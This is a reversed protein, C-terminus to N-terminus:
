QCAPLPSPYVAEVFGVSCVGTSPMTIESGQILKGALSPLPATPSVTLNVGNLSIMDAAPDEAQSYHWHVILGTLWLWLLSRRSRHM